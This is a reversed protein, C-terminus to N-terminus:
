WNGRKRQLAGVAKSEGGAKLREGEQAILMVGRGRCGVKGEGRQSNYLGERKEGPCYVGKQVPCLPMTFGTDFRERTM